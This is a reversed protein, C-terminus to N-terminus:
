QRVIKQLIIFIIAFAIAIPIAIAFEKKNVVKKEAELSLTYGHPTLLPNLEAMVAEQSADSFNGCVEVSRDKLSSTASTVKSNEKLESETLVVCAQCHMGHVYFNYKQETTTM